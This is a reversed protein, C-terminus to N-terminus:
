LLSFSCLFLTLVSTRSDKQLTFNEGLSEGFLENWWIKQLTVHLFM